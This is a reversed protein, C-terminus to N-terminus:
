REDSNEKQIREWENQADDLYEGVLRLAPAPFQQTNYMQQTFNPDTESKIVLNLSYDAIKNFIHQRVFALPPKIM